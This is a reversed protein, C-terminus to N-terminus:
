PTTSTATPGRWTEVVRHLRVPDLKTSPLRQNTAPDQNLERKIQQFLWFHIVSTIVLFVVWGIMLTHWDRYPRPRAKLPDLSTGLGLGSFLKHYNISKM